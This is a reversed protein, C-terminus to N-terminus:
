SHVSRTGDTAVHINRFEVPQTGTDAPVSSLTGFLNRESILLQPLDLLHKTIYFRYKLSARNVMFLILCYPVMDETTKKCRAVVNRYRSLSASLTTGALLGTM